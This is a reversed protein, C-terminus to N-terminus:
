RACCACGWVLPDTSRSPRDYGVTSRDTSWGLGFTLNRFIKFHLSNKFYKTNAKLLYLLTYAILYM